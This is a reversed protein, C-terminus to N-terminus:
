PAEWVAECLRKAEALTLKYQGYIFRIATIRKGEMLDLILQREAQTIEFSKTVRVSVTVKEMTSEEKYLKLTVRDGVCYRGDLTFSFHRSDGDVSVIVQYVTASDPYIETVVGVGVWRGCTVKDGVKFM